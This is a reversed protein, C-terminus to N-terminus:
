SFKTYTGKNNMQSGKVTLTGYVMGNRRVLGDRLGM